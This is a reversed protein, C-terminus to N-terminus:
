RPRDIRPGVEYAIAYLLGTDPEPYSTWVLRKYTGDACRFRNEFSLTTIGQALKEVEQQTSEMDDPHILDFFPRSLLQETSWGLTREFAPNTRKFYGDTGAICLMDVSVDFFRRYEHLLTMRQELEDAMENFTRALLGVEDESHVEARTSLAGGRIKDAVTALDHIPKAFRLGLIAGLLVAFASLSLALQILGERFVAIPAREESDDVTAVLGWGTEPIHRTAAWVPVGRYDSVGEWFVGEDGALARMVPDDASMTVGLSVTAPGEHRVPHLVEPGAEGEMVIMTEGTEGLGDYHGTLDTLEGAVLEAILSGVTEDALSLQAAFTVRATGPATLRAGRYEIAAAPPPSSGPAEVEDKAIFAVLSGQPDYVALLSLTSSSGLADRLIRRIRDAVDARGTRTHDRLSIRLQTRSAVLAVRERWGALIVELADKKSEALGDLQDVTSERLLSRVSPYTTIGLALMSGLAVAVLAFVLKTRIDV